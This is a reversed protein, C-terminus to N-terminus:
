KDEMISQLNGSLRCHHRGLGRTFSSGLRAFGSLSDGFAVLLLPFALPLFGIGDVDVLHSSTKNQCKLDKSLHQLLHMRVSADGGLGHGDHVRKDVVQKLPNSGLSALQSM